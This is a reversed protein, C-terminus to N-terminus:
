RCSTLREVAAWFPEFAEHDLRRGPVSTGIEVGACGDAAADVLVSVASEVAQLPVTALWRWGRSSARCMEALGENTARAIAEGAESDVDYYFLPPAVSIVAADLENAELQAVKAGPDVFWESIEFDAHAEGRWRRGTLTGHTRNGAILELTREPVAHIHVDIRV